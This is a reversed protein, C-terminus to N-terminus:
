SRGRILARRGGPDVPRDSVLLEAAPSPDPRWAWTNWRALWGVGPQNASRAHPRRPEARRPRRRRLHPDTHASRTPMRKRRPRASATDLMDGFTPGGSCNGARATSLKDFPVDFRAFATRQSASPRWPRRGTSAPLVPRARLRLRCRQEPALEHEAPIRGKAILLDVFLALIGLLATTLLAAFAGAIRALWIHDRHGALTDWARTFASRHEM